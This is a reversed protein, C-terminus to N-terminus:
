DKPLSQNYNKTHIRDILIDSVTDSALDNVYVAAKIVKQSEAGKYINMCAEILPFLYLMVEVASKPVQELDLWEERCRRLTDCLHEYKEDDFGEGMRLPVLFAIAAEHLDEGIDNSMNKERISLGSVSTM